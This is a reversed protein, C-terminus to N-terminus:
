VIQWHDGVVVVSRDCYCDLIGDSALIALLETNQHLFNLRCAPPVARELAPEVFAQSLGAQEAQFVQNGRPSFM